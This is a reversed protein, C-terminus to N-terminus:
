QLLANRLAIIEDSNATLTQKVTEMDTYATVEDKLCHSITTNNFFENITSMEEDYQALYEITNIISACSEGFAKIDAESVRGAFLDTDNLVMYLVEILTAYQAKWFDAVDGREMLVNYQERLVESIPTGKLIKHFNRPYNQEVTLKMVVKFTETCPMDYAQRIGNEFMYIILANLKQSKTVLTNAVSPDLLYDPKVLKEEETLKLTTFNFCNSNTDFYQDAYRDIKALVSDALATKQEQIEDQTPESQKNNKCSVMM